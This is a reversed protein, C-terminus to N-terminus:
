KPLKHEAVYKDVFEKTADFSNFAAFVCSDRFLYDELYCEAIMSEAADGEWTEFDALSYGFAAIAAEIEDGSLESLDVEDSVVVYKHRGNAIDEDTTDLLICQIMEYTHQGIKRFYQCSDDDHLEWDWVAPSKLLYSLNGM